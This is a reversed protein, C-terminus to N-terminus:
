RPRRRPFKVVKPDRPPIRLASLEEQWGECQRCLDQDERGEHRLPYRCHKCAPEPKM